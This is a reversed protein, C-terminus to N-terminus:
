NFLGTNSPQAVLDHFVCEPPHAPDVVMTDKSPEDSILYAYNNGTGTGQLFDSILIYMTEVTTLSECMPISEIHM